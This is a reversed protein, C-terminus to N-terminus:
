TGKISITKPVYEEGLEKPFDMIMGQTIDKDAFSKKAGDLIPRYGTCRCLNGNFSDEIDHLTPQKEISCNALTDYLSMCMGPTCFGGLIIYFKELKFMSFYTKCQSGYNEAITRQIPHLNGSSKHTSGLGEITVIHCGDLTCLLILCSNVSSHTISKTLPDYKSVVVTCSGTHLSSAFKIKFNTSFYDIKLRVVVALAV